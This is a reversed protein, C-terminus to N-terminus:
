EEKKFRTGYKDFIDFLGFIITLSFFLMNIYSLYNYRFSQVEYQYVNITTNYVPILIEVNYSSMMLVALLLGTIFWIVEQKTYFSIFWLILSIVQLTVFIEVLM